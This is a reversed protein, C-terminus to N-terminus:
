LMSVDPWGTGPNIRYGWVGPVTAWQLVLKSTVPMIRGPFLDVAFASISGLDATRSASAKGSPWLSPRFNSSPCDAPTHMPYHGNDDDNDDYDDHMLMLVMMMLITTKM